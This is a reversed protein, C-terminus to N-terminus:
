RDDQVPQPDPAFPDGSALFGELDTEIRTEQELRWTKAIKRALRTQNDLLSQAAAVEAQLQNRLRAEHADLAARVEIAREEQVSTLHLREETLVAEDGLTALQEYLSPKGFFLLMKFLVPACEMALFFLFLLMHATGLAPSKTTIRDLAELRALLGDGHVVAAHNAAAEADRARQTAAVRRQLDALRPAQSTRTDRAARGLDARVQATKADLATALRDRQAQLRDRLKVKEAYAPGSGAKGSGCKGEQECVVARQAPALRQDVAAMRGRLDAVEPSNFVAADSVGSAAIEQM